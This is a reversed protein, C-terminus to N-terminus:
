KSNFEWRQPKGGASKACLEIWDLELPKDSAPLYLRIIGLPGTAPIDVSLERWDGAPIDFTVSKAGSPEGAGGPVWELKTTGAASSRVRLKM